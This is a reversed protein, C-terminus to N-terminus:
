IVPPAGPKTDVGECAEEADFRPAKAREGLLARHEDGGVLRLLMEQVETAGVHGDAPGDAAEGAAIDAPGVALFDVDEFIAAHALAVRGTVKDPARAL